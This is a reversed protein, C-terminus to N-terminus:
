ELATPTSFNAEYVQKDKNIIYSYKKELKENKYIFLFASDLTTDCVQWKFAQNEDLNSLLSGNSVKVSIGKKDFYEYPIPLYNIAGLYITKSDCYISQNEYFLSDSTSINSKSFPNVVQAYATNNLFLFIFILYKM